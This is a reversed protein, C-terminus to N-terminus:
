CRTTLGKEEIIQNVRADILATLEDGVKAELQDVSGCRWCHYFAECSCKEKAITLYEKITELLTNFM